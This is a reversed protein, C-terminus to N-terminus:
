HYPGDLHGASPPLLLQRLQGQVDATLRSSYAGSLLQIAVAKAQSSDDQCLRTAVAPLRRALAESVCDSQLVLGLLRTSWRLGLARNLWPHSPLCSPCGENDALLQAHPLLVELCELVSAQLRTDRKAVVLTALTYALGSCDAYRLPSLRAIGTSHLLLPLLELARSPDASGLERLLSQRSVRVSRESTLRSHHQVQALAALLPWAHPIGTSLQSELWGLWRGCSLLLSAAASAVDADVGGLVALFYGLATAVQSSESSRLSLQMVKQFLQLEGNALLLGTLSVCGQVCLLVADLLRWLYQTGPAEAQQHWHQSFAELCLDVLCGRLDCEGQEGSPSKHFLERLFALTRQALDEDPSTLLRVLPRLAPPAINPPEPQEMWQCWAYEGLLKQHRDTSVCWYLVDQESPLIDLWHGRQCLQDLLWYSAAEVQERVGDNCWRVLSPILRCLLSLLLSSSQCGDKGSMAVYRAVASAISGSPEMWDVASRDPHPQLTCLMLVALLTETHAGWQSQCLVNLCGVFSDPLSHCGMQLSGLLATDRFRPEAAFWLLWAFVASTLPVLEKQHARIDWLFPLLAPCADRLRAAFAGGSDEQEALRFALCLCELFIECVDQQQQQSHQYHPLFLGMLQEMLFSALSGLQDLFLQGTADAPAYSDERAVPDELAHSHVQAWRLLLRLGACLLRGQAGEQHASPCTLAGPLCRLSLGLHEELLALPLPVPLVAVSCLEASVELSALMVAQHGTEMQDSLHQLLSQLQHRSARFGQQRSLVAQLLSLADAASELHKSLTLRSASILLPQVAYATILSELLAPRQSFLLLCEVVSELFLTDAASVLCEVLVDPLHLRACLPAAQTCVLASICKVAAIRVSGQQAQLLVCKLSCLLEALSSSEEGKTVACSDEELVAAVPLLQCLSQLLDVHLRHPAASRLAAASQRLLQSLVQQQRLVLGGERSLRALLCAVSFLAGERCSPPLLLRSLADCVEGTRSAVVGAVAATDMGALMALLSLQAETKVSPGGSLCVGDVVEEVASRVLRPAEPSGSLSLFTLACCVGDCAAKRAEPDPTQAMFSHLAAAALSWVPLAAATRLPGPPPRPLDRLAAALAQAAAAARPVSWLHSWHLLLHVCCVLCCTTGDVPDCVLGLWCLEHGCAGSSRAPAEGM